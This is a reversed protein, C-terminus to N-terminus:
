SSAAQRYLYEAFQIYLETLTLIDELAPRDELSHNFANRCKKLLQHMRLFLGLADLDGAPVKSGIGKLSSPIDRFGTTRTKDFPLLNNKDETNVFFDINMGSVPKGSLIKRLDEKHQAYYRVADKLSCFRKTPFLGGMKLFSDFLYYDLDGGANSINDRDTYCSPGFTLLNKKVIEEPMSSEIFTLAQQYLKKDLCRKVILLTTRKKTLLLDGYSERIYDLFVGLLSDPTIDPSDIYKALATLGQKYSITDCCQTGLAIKDIAKIIDKEPGAAKKKEFYTRLVDANGYNIFDNMGTVFEFFDFAERGDALRMIHNSFKSSYIEDPVIGDIKLLSVMGSLITMILRFSGHADIWFCAGSADSDHKWKRILEVSATIGSVTDEEDIPVLTFQLRNDDSDFEQRTFSEKVYGSLDIGTELQECVSKMFFQADTIPDETSFDMCMVQRTCLVVVKIKDAPYQQAKWVLIPEMQGIYIIGDDEGDTGKEEMHPYFLSSEIDETKLIKKGAASRPLMSLALVLLHTM